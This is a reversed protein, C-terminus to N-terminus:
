KPTPTGPLAWFGITVQLILFGSHGSPNPYSPPFPACQQSIVGTIGPIMLVTNSQDVLAVGLQSFLTTTVDAALWNGSGPSGLPLGTPQTDSTILFRSNTLSMDCGKTLEGLSSDTEVRFVATAPDFHKRSISIAGFTGTPTSPTGSSVPGNPDLVIAATVDKSQNLVFNPPITPFFGGGAMAEGFVLFPLAMAAILLVAFRKTRFM